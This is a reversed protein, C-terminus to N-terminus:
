APSKRSEGGRQILERRRDVCPADLVGGFVAACATKPSSDVSFNLSLCSALFVPSACPASPSLPGFAPPAGAAPAWLRHPPAPM